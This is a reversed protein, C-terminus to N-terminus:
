VGLLSRAEEMGDAPRGYESATVRALAELHRWRFAPRTESFEESVTRYFKEAHLAGDESIAFKLLHDFVPRAPLNRQGIHHVIATAHAQLNARVAEDLQGLLTEMDTAQIQSLHWDVPLPEWNLFDGGRNIRDFAVQFAGLILCAFRNRANGAQSMHRWANASDCAHVGISDGHVSGVPKGPQEERPRRGRDRLVLQNAALTLAEGVAEPDIGDALSAAAAGAAQEPSSQFLTQSFADVWADDVSRSGPTRDHLGYEEMVQPLIRRPKAATPSQAHREANVCYHVSQRLLTHAQEMGILQLMDWARYPLVVRHVETADQVAILLQNFAEEPTGASLTAFIRESKGLDQERISARLDEGTLAVSSDNTPAVVHLVEASRGGREQIRKNNRYLVKYIPLAQEPEPLERSMHYAPAMAMLTHFGVYDEGGFTRANSLAGAAIMQSLSTGSKQRAVLAPLLQDSSTEQMLRVLPELRGFNLAQPAEEALASTLGLGHALELGITTVLMGQGVEALFARRTRPPKM